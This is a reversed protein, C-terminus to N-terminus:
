AEPASSMTTCFAVMMSATTPMTFASMPMRSPRMTQMPLAPLGCTILPTSKRSRQPGFVVTTCASPSITVAPPMSACACKRDGCCAHCASAPPVVVIIPM